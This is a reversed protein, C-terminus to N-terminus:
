GRWFEDTPPTRAAADTAFNSAVALKAIRAGQRAIRIILPLAGWVAIAVSHYGSIV